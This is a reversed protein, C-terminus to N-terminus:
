LQIQFGFKEYLRIAAVRASSTTLYAREHGLEKLRQCTVSLLPKALGQGQYDPVIAVWHVRGYPLGEFNDNFWATSTGIVAGQGTLLYVQRRNLLTPDTGFQQQFLELSVQNYLDAQRHIELWAQEDGPAYWRFSYGSQLAFNPLNELNPRVMLVPQNDLM